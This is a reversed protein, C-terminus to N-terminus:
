LVGHPLVMFGKLGEARDFPLANRLVAEILEDAVDKGFGLGHYLRDGCRRCLCGRYSPCAGLGLRGDVGAFHLPGKGLALLAGRDVQGLVQALFPLLDLDARFLVRQSDVDVLKSGLIAPSGPKRPPADM